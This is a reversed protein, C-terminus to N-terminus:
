NAKLFSRYQNHKKEKGNIRVSVSGSGSWSKIQIVPNIVISHDITFECKSVKTTNEFVLAKEAESVGLFESNISKLRIEDDRILWSKTRDQAERFDRRAVPGILFSWELYKRDNSTDIRGYQEYYSNAPYVDLERFGISVLSAHSVEVHPDVSRGGSYAMGHYPRKNVPWHTLLGKPTQWTHEFRLSLGPYTDPYAPDTSFVEIIDPLNLQSKFHVQAIVQLYDDVATGYGFRNSEYLEQANGELDHLTLPPNDTFDCSNSNNGSVLMPESVENWDVEDIDLKPYYRVHRIGMGDPYLTFTERVLPMQSGRNYPIEYKPNLLSYEWQLVKRVPNDEIVKVQSHAKLRDSMPEYCGTEEWTSEPGTWTEVFEYSYALQDMMYWHPVWNFESWFVFKLDHERYRNEDGFTVVYAPGSYGSWNYDRYTLAFGTGTDERDTLPLVGVKINTFEARGGTSVLGIFYSGETQWNPTSRLEMWDAGPNGYVTDRVGYYFQFYNPGNHRLIKIRKDTRTYPLSIKTAELRHSYGDEPHGETYPIVSHTSDLVNSIGCQRDNVAVDVVGDVTEVRILTYNDPDPQGNRNRFLVLAVNDDVLYGAMAYFHGVVPKTHYVGYFGDGSANISLSGGSITYTGYPNGEFSIPHWNEGATRFSDEWGNGPVTDATNSGTCGSTICILTV